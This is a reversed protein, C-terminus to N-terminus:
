TDGSQDRLRDTVAGIRGRVVLALGIVVLLIGAIPLLPLGDDTSETVEIPVRFTDTLQSDGREDDYRVDLSLPYEKAVAGSDVNLDFVVTTTEGPDLSSVFAEDDDSDLPSDTFLKVRVNEVPEDRTNEIELEVTESDGAEFTADVPEFAFADRKPEVDILLDRADDLRVDGAHNRYRTQFEFVRPGPEAEEGVGIRFRFAATEGPELDGVAYQTDRPFVNPLDSDYLVVVNEVEQTGTNEIVGLLDGDEGVRITQRTDTLSFTQEGTPQFGFQRERTAVTTDDEARADVTADITYNRQVADDTAGTRFVFDKTEGAAWDGVFAESTPAGGGDAEFAIEEVQVAEGTAGSGFVIDGDNTSVTVSASTVDQPGDNRMSLELIGDDGVAVDHDVDTITYTQRPLPEFGFERTRPNLERDDVSLADITAGITYNREIADNSAVTRVEVTRTEGAAWDDVFVDTTPAGDAAAFGIAPDEANITVTANSVDRPGTNHLDVELIGDDGIVVDHDVAEVLYSQRPLPRFAAPRTREDDEGDGDTFAVNMDVPYFKSIAESGTGTRYTLTKTEGAGWDGVFEASTAAGATGFVIDQDLAEATVVADTVNETGTHEMEVELTGLEDIQVDHDVNRVEFRPEDEVTVTVDFTESRDNVDEEFQWDGESDRQYTVPSADRYDVTVEIEYEGPEADDDVLIDFPAPGESEGDSITGLPQSGTRVSLPAESADTIEVEVSRAETVRERAEQPHTGFTRVTGDNSVFLELTGDEGAEFQSDPAQVDLGPNGQITIPQTTNGEVPITGGVFASLALATVILATITGLATPALPRSGGANRDRGSPPSEHM